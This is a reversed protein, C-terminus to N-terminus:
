KIQDTNCISGESSDENCEVRYYFSRLMLTGMMRGNEAATTKVSNGGDSQGLIVKPITNLVGDQLINLIPQNYGPVLDTGFFLIPLAVVLVLMVVTRTILKGVGQEKDLMKDPSILYQIFSFSLKFVMFIALIVYVRRYIISVVETNVTLDKIVFIAELIWSILGYVVYDIGGLFDRFLESASTVDNIGLIM